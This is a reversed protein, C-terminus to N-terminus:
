RIFQSLQQIRLLKSKLRSDLNAEQRSEQSESQKGVSARSALAQFFLNSSHSISKRLICRLNAEKEVCQDLEVAHRGAERVEEVQVLLTSLCFCILCLKLSASVLCHILSAFFLIVEETHQQWSFKLM